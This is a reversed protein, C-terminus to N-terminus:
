PKSQSDRHGSAQVQGAIKASGARNTNRLSRNTSRFFAAFSM